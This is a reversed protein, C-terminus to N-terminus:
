YCPTGNYDVIMDGNYGSPIDWDIYQIYYKRYSIQSFSLVDRNMQGLENVAFQEDRKFCDPKQVPKSTSQVSNSELNNSTPKPIIHIISIFIITCFMVLMVSGFSPNSYDKSDNATNNKQKQNMYLKNLLNLYEGFWVM